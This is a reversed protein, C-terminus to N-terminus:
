GWIGKGENFGEYYVDHKGVYRKHWHCKGDELQYRGRVVFPGVRDRGEGTMDGNAFTLLLEMQHKGRLAGQIFYGIWRGSPFRPDTELSQPTVRAGQLIPIESASLNLNWSSASARKPCCTRTAKLELQM